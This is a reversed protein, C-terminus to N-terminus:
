SSLVTIKHGQNGNIESKQENSNGCHEDCFNKVTLCSEVLKSRTLNIEYTTEPEKQKLLLYIGPFENFM